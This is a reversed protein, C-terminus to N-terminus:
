KQCEDFREDFFSRQGGFFFQEGDQATPRVRNVFQPTTRLEDPRQTQSRHNHTLGRAPLEGLHMEREWGGMEGVLADQFLLDTM